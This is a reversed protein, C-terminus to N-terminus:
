VYENDLLGVKIKLNSVYAKSQTSSISLGIQKGKVRVPIRSIVNSGKVEFSRCENESFVSITIDYLSLLSIEKVSKIKDAFGLDTTPSCWYKPQTKGFILGDTTLQGINNSYDGNFCALLKDASAYQLTCLDVIDVGRCISYQNTQTDLMILANNKCTKNAECGVVKNDGFNLKCALYYVGNRFSAVAYQNSVGVLLRNLKLDLKQASTNDFQYIGDKCLVLGNSGCVCATDAYMRSGSCLLHTLDYTSGYWNIRTIGFDRIAFLYGNFAILKNICGRDSDLKIIVTSNTLKDTWDLLNEEQTRISLREGSLIAFARNKHECFDTIAPVDPHHIPAELNDFSYLRDEDNFFVIVDDTGNTYNKMKPLATPQMLRLESFIPASTIARTFFARNESNVVMIKDQRLGYTKNYEKFHSVKVFEKKRDADMMYTAVTEASGEEFTSPASVPEFGVSEVLAGNKYEFNYAVVASDFDAINEDTGADIGESFNKISYEIVKETPFKLKKM